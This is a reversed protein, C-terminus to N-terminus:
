YQSCCLVISNIEKKLELTVSEEGVRCSCAKEAERRRLEQRQLATPLNENGGAAGGLGRTSGRLVFM